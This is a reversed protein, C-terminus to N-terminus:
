PGVVAGHGGTRQMSAYKLTLKLLAMCRGANRQRCAGAYFPLVHAGCTCALDSGGCEAILASVPLMMFFVNRGGFYHNFQRKGATTITEVMRGAAAAM